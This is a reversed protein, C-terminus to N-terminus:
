HKNLGTIHPNREDKHQLVISEVLQLVFLVLIRLPPAYLLRTSHYLPPQYTRPCSPASPCSHPHWNLFVVSRNFNQVQWLKLLSLLWQFTCCLPFLIFPYLTWESSFCVTKELVKDLSAPLCPPLIQEEMGGQKTHTWNWSISYSFCFSM